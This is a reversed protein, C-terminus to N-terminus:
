PKRGAYLEYELLRCDLKASYFEIRRRAKLGIRKALELNGTFVYGVYGQCRQKMFDGIRVYTEELASVEGLREGYEPNFYIVGNGQPVSTEAFDCVEFDIHAAVGARRANAQAIAVTEANIDSAIIKLDRRVRVQREVEELIRAYYESAFENLHMFAYNSRYLGPRRNTAMMAAEIAVTGSGCMPNVFPERYNWRSALLTAAALGELMPAPGPEKRYGHHALTQGAMDYFVEARDDRWYLHVVAQDLAPGSNPRAGTKERMADVVADKVKVNVYMSNNVTPHDVNNTVSFYGDSKLLREWPLRKVGKYVDIPNRAPFSSLSYLIQSATRLHLSLRICDMGTARLEVGTVFTRAPTYGLDSVEQELWPALRKSCTIIVRATRNFVDM